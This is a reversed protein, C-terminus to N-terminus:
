RRRARLAARRRWGGLWFGCAIGLTDAIWDRWDPDRGPIWGQHYEDVAAFLLLVVWLILYRGIGSRLLGRNRRETLRRHPLGSDQAGTGGWARALARM